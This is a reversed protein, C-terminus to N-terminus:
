HRSVPLVWNWRVAALRVAATFLTAIWTALEAPLHWHRMAIYLLAGGFACSAYLPTQRFLSPVENCLVDRIVGGATGTIGGMLAAIFVSTGAQLAYGAGTVAFLGLGLADAVLLARAPVRGTAPVLAFVVALLLVAIAYIDHEIWFLPTRDLLMDRLTGGGFATALAV